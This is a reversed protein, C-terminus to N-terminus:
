EQRKKSRELIVDRSMHHMGSASRKQERSLSRLCLVSDSVSKEQLYMSYINSQFLVNRQRMDFSAIVDQLQSQPQPAPQAPDRVVIALCDSKPIDVSDPFLEQAIAILGMAVKPVMQADLRKLTQFHKAFPPLVAVDKAM